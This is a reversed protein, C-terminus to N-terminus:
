VTPEFIFIRIVKLTFENDNAQKEKTAKYIKTVSNLVETTKRLRTIRILIM